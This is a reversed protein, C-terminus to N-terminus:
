GMAMLLIYAKEWGIDHRTIYCFKALMHAQKNLTRAIYDFNVFSFSTALAKIDSIISNISCGSDEKLAQVAEKDDTLVRATDFGNKRVKEM